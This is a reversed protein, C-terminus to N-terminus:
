LGCGRRHHWSDVVGRVLSRVPRDRLAEYGAEAIQSREEPHSLFHMVSSIMTEDTFLGVGGAQEMWVDDPCNSGSLESLIFRRVMLLQTIRSWKTECELGFNTLNIIIRARRVFRGLAPGYASGVAVLRLGHISRLKEMANLRPPHGNSQPHSAPTKTGFFLVDIDEDARGVSWVGSGEGGIEHSEMESEPSWRGHSVAWRHDAETCQEPGRMLAVTLQVGGSLYEEGMLSEGERCDWEKIWAEAFGSLPVYESRIGHDRGLCESNKLSYDWM